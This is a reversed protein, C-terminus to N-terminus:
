CSPSLLDLHRPELSFAHSCIPTRRPNALGILMPRRNRGSVRRTQLAPNQSAAGRRAQAPLPCKRRLSGSPCTGGNPLLPPSALGTNWNWTLDGSTRRRCMATEHLAFMGPMLDAKASSRERFTMYPGSASYPPSPAEDRAEPRGTRAFSTWYGVMANSLRSEQPTTPIKPWRPPTRDLTGFMFPLESAHFAHLGAQDAAPYGHDFLYLFSPRGIGTWCGSVFIGGSM